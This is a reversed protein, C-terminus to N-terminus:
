LSKCFCFCQLFYNFPTIRKKNLFLKNTIGNKGGKVSLTLSPDPTPVSLAIYGGGGGGGAGEAEEINNGVDAAKIYQNGGAGGEAILQM